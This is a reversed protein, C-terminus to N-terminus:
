WMLLTFFFFRIIVDFHLFHMQCFDLVWEHNSFGWCVLFLSLSRWSSLSYGGFFMYDIGYYVSVWLRGMLMLFLALSDGRMLVKCCLPLRTLAILFFLWLSRYSFKTWLQNYTYFIWSDIFFSKFNVVFLKCCPAPHLVLVCFDVDTSLFVSYQWSILKELKM